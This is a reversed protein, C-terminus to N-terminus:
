KSEFISRVVLQRKFLGKNFVGNQNVIGADKSFLEHAAKEFDGTALAKSAEKAKTFKGDKFEGGANYFVLRLAFKQKDTFSKGSSSELSSIGKDINKMLTGIVIKQQTTSISDGVKFPKFNIDLKKLTDNALKM